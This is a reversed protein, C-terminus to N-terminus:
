HECKIVVCQNWKDISYEAEDTGVVCSKIRSWDIQHVNVLYNSVSRIRNSALQKNYDYTGYRRSAYGYLVVKADVHEELFKAVNALTIEGDTRLKKYSGEKFWVTQNWMDDYDFSNSKCVVNEDYDLTIYEKENDSRDVERNHMMINNNIVINQKEERVKKKTVYIVEVDDYYVMPAHSRIVVHGGYHHHRVRHHYQGFVTLSLMLVSFLFILRKM